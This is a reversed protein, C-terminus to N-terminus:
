NLWSWARYTRPGLRAMSWSFKEHDRRNFADSANVGYAMVVPSEDGGAANFWAQKVTLGLNGYFAYNFGRGSHDYMLGTGGTLMHIGDAVPDWHSLHNLELGHCTIMNVIRASKNGLKSWQVGSIKTGAISTTIGNVVNNHGPSYYYAASDSAGHTEFLYINANDAYSSDWSGSVIPDVLDGTWFNSDGALFKKTHGFWGMVNYFDRANGYANPLKPDGNTDWTAWEAGVTAARALGAPALLAAGLLAAALRLRTNM